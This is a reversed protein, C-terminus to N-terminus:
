GAKVTLVAPLDEFRLGVLVMRLYTEQHEPLIMAPGTGSSGEHGSDSRKVRWFLKESGVKKILRTESGPM